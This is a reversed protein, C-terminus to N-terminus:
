QNRRHGLASFFVTGALLGALGPLLLIGFPGSSTQDAPRPAIVGTSDWTAMFRDGVARTERERMTGSISRGDPTALALYYNCHGTKNKHCTRKATVVEGTRGYQNLYVDPVASFAALMLALAVVVGATFAINSRHTWRL